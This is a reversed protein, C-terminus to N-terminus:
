RRLTPANVTCLPLANCEGMRVRAGQLCLGGDEALVLAPLVKVGEASRPTAWRALARPRWLIAVLGQGGVDSCGDLTTTDLQLCVLCVVRLHWGDVDEWVTEAGV